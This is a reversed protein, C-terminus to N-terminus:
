WTTFFTMLVPRGRLMGLRAPRGNLEQFTVDPAPTPPTVRLAQMSVFPDSQARVHSVVPVVGVLRSVASVPDASAPTLVTTKEAGLPGGALVLPLSIAILGQTVGNKM